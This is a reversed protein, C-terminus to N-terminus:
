SNLIKLLDKEITEKPSEVIRGIESGNRYFIITPVLEIKLSDTENSRGKKNRGVALISIKNDPFKLYDMLKLFKPVVRRSDSCWTGMVIMVTINDLKEKIKLATVSDVTYMDYLSNFWWSFSTDQFAQRSCFGLLMRQQNLTDIVITDKSVSCLNNDQAFDV